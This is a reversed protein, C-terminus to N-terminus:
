EINFDTIEKTNKDYTFACKIRPEVITNDSIFGSLCEELFCHLITAIQEKTHRNQISVIKTGWVKFGEESM